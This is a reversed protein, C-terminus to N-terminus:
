TIGSLFLMMIYSHAQKKLSLNWEEIVLGDVMGGVHFSQATCLNALLLIVSFTELKSPSNLNM